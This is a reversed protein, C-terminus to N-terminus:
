YLILMALNLFLGRVIGGLINLLAEACDALLGITGALSAVWTAAIGVVAGSITLGGLFATYGVVSPIHGWHHGRILTISLALVTIGFLAQFGRLVWNVFSSALM